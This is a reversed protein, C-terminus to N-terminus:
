FDITQLPSHKKLVIYNQIKEQYLITWDQNKYEKATNKVEPLNM